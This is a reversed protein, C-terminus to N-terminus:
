RIVQANLITVWTNNENKFEYDFTYRQQLMNLLTDRLQLQFQISDMESETKYLEDKIENYSLKHGYREVYTYTLLSDADNITFFQSSISDRFQLRQILADQEQLQKAMQNAYYWSGGAIILLLTIFLARLGKDINDFIKNRDTNM